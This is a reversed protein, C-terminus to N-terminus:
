IRGAANSERTFSATACATASAALFLPTARIHSSDPVLIFREAGCIGSLQYKFHFHKLKPQM